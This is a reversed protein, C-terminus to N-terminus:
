QSTYTYPPKYAKALQILARTDTNATVSMNDQRTALPFNPGSQILDEIRKNRDEPSAPLGEMKVKEIVGKIEHGPIKEELARITYVGIDQLCFLIPQAQPSTAEAQFAYKRIHAVMRDVHSPLQWTKAVESLRKSAHAARPALLGLHSRAM